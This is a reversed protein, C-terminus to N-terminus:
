LKKTQRPSRRTGSTPSAAKPIEKSVFEQIYDDYFSRLHFTQRNIERVDSSTALVNMYDILNYLERDNRDDHWSIIPVGNDVQYGFSYAANDVIVLDQLRRNTLIRLDKIYIGEVILCNDRYLRHHILERYPDIYDLVVDAYCQHSATFVMVEFLKNAETLVEKVFPRINVGANIVDGTPFTVPLIVDSNKLDENCHVLTEDLDFILTKKNEYGPRKPLNLRKQRVQAPDPNPLNRVFKMAQFTQFLHERYLMESKNKIEEASIEPKAVRKVRTVISNLENKTEEEKPKRLTKLSRSKGKTALYNSHSQFQYSVPNYHSDKSSEGKPTMSTPASIPDKKSIEAASRPRGTLRGVKSSRTSPTPISAINNRLATPSNKALKYFNNEIKADKLSESLEITLKQLKSETKSTFYRPNKPIKSKFSLNNSVALKDKISM